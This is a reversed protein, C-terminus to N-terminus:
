KQVRVVRKAPAERGGGEHWQKIKLSLVIIVFVVVVTSLPISGLIVVAEAAAVDVHIFNIATTATCYITCDV